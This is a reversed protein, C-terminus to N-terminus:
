EAFTSYYSLIQISLINGRYYFPVLALPSLIIGIFFSAFIM